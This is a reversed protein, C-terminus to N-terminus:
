DHNPTREVKNILWEGGLKRFEILLYIHDDWSFTREENIFYFHMETKAVNGQISTNSLRFVDPYEQASFYFASHLFGCPYPAVYEIGEEATAETIKSEELALRCESFVTDEREIFEPTFLGTKRLTAKHAAMDLIYYGEANLKADPSSFGKCVEDYFLTCIQMFAVSKPDNEPPQQFAATSDAIVPQNKAPKSVQNISSKCATLVLILCALNIKFM